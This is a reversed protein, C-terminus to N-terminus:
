LLIQTNTIPSTQLLTFSKLRYELSFLNMTIAPVMLMFIIHLNGYFPSIITQSISMGQPGPGGLMGGQMSNQLYVGLSPFFMMSMVFIVGALIFYALPTSFYFRVEKKALALIARM